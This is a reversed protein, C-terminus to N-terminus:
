IDANFVEIPSYYGLRKRPRSNLADQIGKIKANSYNTTSARKPFYQRLLGNFNENCGREWPHYPQAFYCVVPYRKEIEKYSHFETGNDFTLTKFSSPSRRIIRVIAKTAEKANKRPLKEIFGLGSKRDVITLLAETKTAGEVTDVEWHGVEIRNNAEEPRDSLPRKGSLIGRNDISKYRKKRLKSMIRMRMFLVGGLRRNKRLLRYITEHSITFGHRLKITGSIQEPSYRLKLLSIILKWQSKSFQSKKRVRRRRATAYSHAVQAAYCGTPRLNRQRERYLTSPARGMAKAVEPISFGKGLLACMNYREEQSLQTYNM